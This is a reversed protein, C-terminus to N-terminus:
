PYLRRNALNREHPRRRKFIRGDTRKRNRRLRSSDVKDRVNMDRVSHDNTANKEGIEACTEGVSEGFRLRVIEGSDARKTIIRVGGSLEKGFDLIISAKGKILAYDYEYLGIQLVKEKLLSEPNEIQGETYVIRKPFVYRM